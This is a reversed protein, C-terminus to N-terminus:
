ETWKRPRGSRKRDKLGNFGGLSYRAVWRSVTRVTFPFRGAVSAISEGNKVHRVVAKRVEWKQAPVLRLFALASAIVM